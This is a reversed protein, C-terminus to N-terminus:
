TAPRSGLVFDMPIPGTRPIPHVDACGVQELLKAAREGDIECGGSRITRLRLTAEALPDPPAVLRGLVIWGGRQVARFVNPLARTLIDETMFFTPVWACDYVEVDDLDTMNQSRLTIRDDLGAATVNARARTLSPEWTDIGVITANPWVGAAAVALMGVGTGVDLFSTVDRLEDAGALIPPVTMSGRGWGDLVDPDTFAWGPARGPDELLDTAQRLSTRVLAIVMARQPPALEDLDGLGAASTVGQLAAVIEPPAATGEQVLSLQAGLAAFADASAMWRNVAGIVDEFAM